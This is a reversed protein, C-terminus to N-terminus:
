RRHQRYSPWDCVVIETIRDAISNGFRAALEDSTLNTVLVTEKGDEWGRKDIVRFLNIWEDTTGRSKDIDDIVLLAPDIWRRMASFISSDGTYAEQRLQDIMDAMLVHKAEVFRKCASTVAISTGFTKGTGNNPRDMPAVFVTLGRAGERGARNAILWLTNKFRIEAESNTTLDEWTKGAHIPPVGSRALLGIVEWGKRRCRETEREASGLGNKALAEV